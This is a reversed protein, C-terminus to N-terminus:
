EEKTATIKLFPMNEDGSDVPSTYLEMLFFDGAKRFGIIANLKWDWTPFNNGGSRKTVLGYVSNAPLSLDAVRDADFLPHGEVTGTIIEVVLIDGSCSTLFYSSRSESFFFPDSLEFCKGTPDFYRGPEINASFIAPSLISELAAIRAHLSSGEISIPSVIVEELATLKEEIDASEDATLTPSVLDELASIRNEVESPVPEDIEEINLLTFENKLFDMEIQVNGFWAKDANLSVAPLTLISSKSDFNSINSDAFAPSLLTLSSLGCVISVRIKKFFQM